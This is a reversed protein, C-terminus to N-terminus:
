LVQPQPLGSLKQAAVLGMAKPLQAVTIGRMGQIQQATFGSVSPVEDYGMSMLTYLALVGAAGQIAGTAAGAKVPSVGKNRLTGYVGYGLMGALTAGGIAILVPYLKGM